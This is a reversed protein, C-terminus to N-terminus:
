QTVRGEAEGAGGEGGNVEVHEGVGAEDVQNHRRGHADDDVRSCEIEGDYQAKKDGACKVQGDHEGILRTSLITTRIGTM